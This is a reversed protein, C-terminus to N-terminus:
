PHHHTPNPQCYILVESTSHRCFNDIYVNRKARVFRVNLWEVKAYKESCSSLISHTMLASTCCRPRSFHRPNRSELSLVAMMLGRLHFPFPLEARSAAWDCCLYGLRLMSSVALNIGVTPRVTDNFTGCQRRLLQCTLDM